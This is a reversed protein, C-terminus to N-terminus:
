EPKVSSISAQALFILLFPAGIMAIVRDSSEGRALSESRLRHTAEESTRTLVPAMDDLIDCNFIISM